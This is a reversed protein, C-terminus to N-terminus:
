VSRTERLADHAIQECAQVIERGEVASVPAQEGARLAAHFAGISSKMSLTFPDKVPALKLFGLVYRSFEAAGQWALAAGNAASDALEALPPVWRRKTHMLLTNRRLDARASADQGTVDVWNEFDDKGFAMRVQATGRECCLTALWDSYFKKGTNLPKAGLAVGSVEQVPGLLRVVLSLQHPGQELLINGAERFMWHGHQGASLQRLGVSLNVTVHEIRGFIRNRAADVLKLMAPHFSLNHNVGAQLGTRAATEVIRECEASSHGLPKEVFVHSGSELCALAASVHADSPTVVHVADPRMRELLEEVSRAATTKWRRAASEARGADVDFVGALEIGPIAQLARLHADAIFGAGIVGVRWAGGDNRPSRRSKEVASM